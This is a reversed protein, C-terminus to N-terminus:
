QAKDVTQAVVRELQKGHLNVGQVIGEADVVINGYGSRNFTRIADNWGGPMFASPWNIEKSEFIKKAKVLYEDSQNFYQPDVSLLVVALKEPGHQKQVRQVM